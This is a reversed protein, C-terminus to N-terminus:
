GQTNFWLHINTPIDATVTQQAQETRVSALDKAEEINDWAERTTVGNVEVEWWGGRKEELVHSHAPLTADETGPGFVASLDITSPHNICEGAVPCHLDIGETDEFLPVLVYAVPLDGPRPATEPGAGLVCGSDAGSQPPQDCLFEKSYSFTVERGDFWGPTTGREAINGQHASPNAGHGGAEAPVSGLGVALLAGALALLLSLGVIRSRQWSSTKM